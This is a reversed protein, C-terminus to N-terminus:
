GGHPAHCSLCNRSAAGTGQHEARSTSMPVVTESQPALAASPDHCSRCLLEVSQQRLLVPEGGGHVEHCAACAVPAHRDLYLTAAHCRVCVGVQSQPNLVPDPGGHVQHCSTCEPLSLDGAPVPAPAANGSGRTGLAIGLPRARLLRPDPRNAPRALPHDDALDGLFRPNSFATQPVAGLIPDRARADPTGHCRLCSRSVASLDNGLTGASAAPGCDASTGRQSPDPPVLLFVTASRGDCANAATKAHSAHCLGCGQAAMAPASALGHGRDHSQGQIAPTPPALALFALALVARGLRAVSGDRPSAAM